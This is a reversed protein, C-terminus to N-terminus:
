SVLSLLFSWFVWCPLCFLIVVSGDFAGRQRIQLYRQFANKLLDFTEICPRIKKKRQNGVVAFLGLLIDEEQQDNAENDSQGPRNREPM